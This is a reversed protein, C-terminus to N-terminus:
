GMGPVGHEGMGTVGHEGIRPVGHEGMRSERSVEEFHETSLCRLAGLEGLGLMSSTRGSKRKTITRARKFTNQERATYEM